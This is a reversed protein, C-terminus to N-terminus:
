SANGLAADVLSRLTKDYGAEDLREFNSLIITFAGADTIAVAEGGLEGASVYGKGDVDLDEISGYRGEASERSVDYAATGATQSATTVTLSAVGKGDGFLCNGEDTMPQGILDTAQEATFPCDPVSTGQGADGGDSTDAQSDTTAADDGGCGGSFLMVMCLM